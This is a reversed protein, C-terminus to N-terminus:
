HGIAPRPVAPAAGAPRDTPIFLSFVAGGFLFILAVQLARRSAAVLATKVDQTVADTIEQPVNQGVSPRQGSEPTISQLSTIIAPKAQAPIVADANINKAIISQLTSALVMGLIAIGIATGVQRITNNVASAEGAMELRVNSLTINTLQAGSGGIGIGFVFLGPALRWGSIGTKLTQEIMLIGIATLFMGVVVVWRLSLKAALFGSLPGFIFISASSALFIMGTNFANLGLVNQLFIPLIFFSGFQGLSVIMLTILGFTFGRSKFMSPRMLPVRGSKELEYEWWVFLTLFIIALLLAFPIISITQLTWQWQGLALVTAPHWWGYKQGEILAFVLSFLGIGSFLTGWWDFGKQEEGRSEQVFVMGLMALIAVFVNIRLAWRWSHYTTFYGGLLPGLAASIGAVSGWVGFAIAREKGQFESVLLSLSSTLMMAAGIAEILAEGLFLIGANKAISAIFSGVAFLVIGVMFIRKRGFVDGVRGVTILITAIILAYGSIVWQIADFSTNLDRLIYPIAVNLVSNDIIVIALGVALFVLAWWRYKESSLDSLKM